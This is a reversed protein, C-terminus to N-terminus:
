QKADEVKATASAKAVGTEGPSLEATVTTRKQTRWFILLPVVVGAIIGHISKPLATYVGVVYDHFAPQTYFAGTIFLWVASVTQSSVSHNALWQKIANM